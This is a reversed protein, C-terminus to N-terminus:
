IEKTLLNKWGTWIRADNIGCVYFAALLDRRAIKALMERRIAERQVEIHEMVFNKHIEM